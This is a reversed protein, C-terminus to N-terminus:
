REVGRRTNRSNHELINDASLNEPNFEPLICLLVSCFDLAPSELGCEEICSNEIIFGTSENARRIGM